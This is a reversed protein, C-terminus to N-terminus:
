AFMKTQSEKEREHMGELFEDIELHDIIDKIDIKRYKEHTNLSTKFRQLSLRVSKQSKKEKKRMEELNQTKDCEEIKNQIDSLYEQFKNTFDTINNKVRKLKKIDGINGPEMLEFGKNTEEFGLLKIQNEKYGEIYKKMKESKSGNNLGKEIAYLTKLKGTYDSHKTIDFIKEISLSKINEYIKDLKKNPILLDTLFQTDNEFRKVLEKYMDKYFKDIKYESKTMRDGGFYFIFKVHFQKEM